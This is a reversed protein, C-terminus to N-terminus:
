AMVDIASSAAWRISDGEAEPTTNGGERNEESNYIRQEERNPPIDGPNAANIVRTPTCVDGPNAALNVRTASNGVRTKDGPNVQTIDGPNLGPQRLDEPPARLEFSNSNRGRSRDVSLWGASEIIQIMRRVSREDMGCELALTVSAPNCRGTNINLHFAIRTAVVKAPGSLTSVKVALIQKIWDDRDKFTEIPWSSSAQRQASPQNSTEINV